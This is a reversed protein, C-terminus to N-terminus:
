VEQPLLQIPGTAMRLASRRDASGAYGALRRRTGRGRCAAGRLSSPTAAAFPADCLIVVSRIGAETDEERNGVLLDAEGVGCVELLAVQADEGALLRGTRVVTMLAPVSAKARM